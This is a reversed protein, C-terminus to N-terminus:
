VRMPMLVTVLDPDNGTVIAPAQGPGTGYRHVDSPPAVEIPTFRFTVDPGIVALADLMYRAQFGVEFPKGTYGVALKESSVGYEPSQASMVLQGDSISLKVAKSRESAIMSVRKVAETFASSVVTMLLTNGKPVVRSYDPYTGDIVKSRFIIGPVRFEVQFKKETAGVSVTVDGEYSKVMQQLFRLTDRPIIVGPMREAGEPLVSDAVNMRHGDTSVARLVKAGDKEATHLYIGNLYYRTEETSIARITRDILTRVSLGSLPFTYPLAEIDPTPYDTLFMGLLTTEFAGCTVKVSNATEIHELEVPAGKPMARTMNLLPHLPVVYAGDRFGVCPLDEIIAKEINSSTITARGETVKILICALIPITNRREIVGSARVLAKMLVTTDTKLYFGNNPEPKPQVAVIAAVKKKPM